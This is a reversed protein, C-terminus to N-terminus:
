NCENKQEGVVEQLKCNNTEKNTCTEIKIEAKKGEELMEQKEDSFDLIKIERTKLNFLPVKCPDPHNGVKEEFPTISQWCSSSVLLINNYTSIEPKHLDGTLVIDPVQSIVLPDEKEGPIYTVSGHTTALHRRKLLERVVKTPSDHKWKTRLEEIENIVEHMSAGHYVLVKFDRIQVFSPNTILILNKLNYLDPAIEETVIPQPEAVRVGDHQGPCMIIKIDKRILSLIEALKRYQARIEKIKLNQEQDPYVGVGDINDGALFLYKIKRAIERQKEDGEEGNLWRIFKLVNEELFMTSGVHMDSSFAIIEEEKAFKKQQLVAEPFYLENAFLIESNGSVKLAVIDDLLLDKAKNFLEEKNRNILVKTKGTPDEVELMINKNATVRKQIIAVIITYSERGGGIKRLSILSDLDREMLIGKIQEYRARFHNVFDQVEVKKPTLQPAYLIKVNEENNSEKKKEVTIEKEEIEERKYGINIFFKEIITKNKGNELVNRIKEYNKSLSAKTIVREQFKIEKLKELLSKASEEDLSSFLELMEKDLLFGRELCIKLITKEM